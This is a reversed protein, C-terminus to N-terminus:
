STTSFSIKVLSPQSRKVVSRLKPWILELRSSLKSTWKSQQNLFRLKTRKSWTKRKSITPRRNYSRWIVKLSSLSSKSTGTESGINNSKRKLSNLKMKTSKIRQLHKNSKFTSRNSRSLFAKSVPLNYKFIQRKNWKMKQQFRRTQSILRSLLLHPTTSDRCFWM